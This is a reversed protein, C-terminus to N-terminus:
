PNTILFDVFVPFHDSYGGEYVSGHFTKKPRKGGRTKDDTEMFDRRFITATHPQVQISKSGKILNGSVIIQDLM